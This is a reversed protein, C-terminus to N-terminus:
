YEIKKACGAKRSDACDSSFHVACLPCPECDAILAAESIYDAKYNILQATQKRSVAICYPNDKRHEQKRCNNEEKCSRILFRYRKGFFTFHFLIQM